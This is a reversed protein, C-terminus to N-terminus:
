LELGVSGVAQGTDIGAYGSPLVGLEVVKSRELKM